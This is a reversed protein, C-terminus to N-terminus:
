ALEVFLHNRHRLIEDEFVKRQTIDNFLVAIQKREAQGFRFAYVDFWSNLKTAHNEFRASKGSQAIDGFTQLSFAQPNSTLATITKGVVSIFGSAQDSGVVKQLTNSLERILTRMFVDRELPIDLNSVQKVISASDNM